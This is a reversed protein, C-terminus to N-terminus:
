PLFNIYKAVRRVRRLLMADFILDVIAEMPYECVFQRTDALHRRLETTRCLWGRQRAYNNSNKRPRADPRGFPACELRVLIAKIENLVRTQETVLNGTENM